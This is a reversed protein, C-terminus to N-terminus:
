FQFKVLFEGIRAHGYPQEIDKFNLGLSVADSVERMISAEWFYEWGELERRIEGDSDILNREDSALQWRARGVRPTLQWGDGFEIQWGIAGYTQKLDYDGTSDDFFDAHVASSRGLEAVLGFPARYGVSVGLQLADFRLTEPQDSVTGADIRLHAYGGYPSVFMKGREEAHVAPAALAALLVPLWRKKGMAIEKSKRSRRSWVGANKRAV